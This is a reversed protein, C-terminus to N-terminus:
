GTEFDEKTPTDAESITSITAPTHSVRRRKEHEKKLMMPSFTWLSPSLVVLYLSVFGIGKKACSEADLDAGLTGTPVNYCLAEIVGFPM